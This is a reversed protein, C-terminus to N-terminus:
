HEIGNGLITFYYRKGGRKQRVFQYLFFHNGFRGTMLEVLGEDYRSRAALIPMVFEHPWWEQAHRFAIIDHPHPVDLAEALQGITCRYTLLLTEFSAKGQVWASYDTHDLIDM